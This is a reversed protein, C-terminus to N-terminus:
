DNHIFNLADSLYAPISVRTVFDPDQSLTLATGTKENLMKGLYRNDKAYDNKYEAGDILKLKSSILDENAEFLCVEFTRKATDNEMFIQFSSTDNYIAHFGTDLDSKKHPNADNDTILALRKKLVGAVSVFREFALGNVPIVTIKDKDFTHGPFMKEYFKELYLTESPGEVLIVKKALVFYLLNDNPLCRFYNSTEHDLKSLAMSDQSDKSLLVVDKLGVGSVIKSSHSTLILQRGENEEQILAIMERMGEPSLHNEPEEIGIVSAEKRADIMMKTKILSERGKGKSVLPLSDEYISVIRELSTKAIDAQFRPSNTPLAKMTDEMAASLKESFTNKLEIQKEPPLLREFIVRSYSSLTPADGSTADILCFSIPSMAPYYATGAFTMVTTQYYECPIDGKRIQVGLKEFLSSDLNIKLEIGFDVTGKNNEEWNAGQFEFFKPDGNMGGFFIQIIISPLTKSSPSAKFSEVNKANFLIPLLSLDFDHSTRNMALDIAELITSKGSENDGVLITKDENFNFTADSFRKYGKIHVM